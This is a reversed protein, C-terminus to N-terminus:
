RQWQYNLQAGPGAVALPVLHKNLEITAALQTADARALLRLTITDGSVSEVNAREVLELKELWAIIAAYDAYATVGTVALTVGGEAAGTAAVAYRAAMAEAALAAGDRLFLAESAVTASRRIVDEGNRFSWEGQASGNALLSLRGSLVHQLSYRASAQALAPDDLNWAQDPSLAASDVLDFLPLQLPVGRRSFEERLTAVLAPATDPNVFIRGAADEVVLWVLVAPRSATWIPAGAEIVLGTIYASDFLLRVALQQPAAPDGGYSYRQVQNRASALASAIVPNRLVAESGSVKVVVESLALRSARALEAPSQDAVPVEASYMDKIVEAWAVGTAGLLVLAFGLSRGIHKIM